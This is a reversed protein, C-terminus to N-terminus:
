TRKWVAQQKTIWDRENYAMKEEFAGGPGFASRQVQDRRRYRLHSDTRGSTRSRCLSGIIHDDYLSKRHGEMAESIESVVLM